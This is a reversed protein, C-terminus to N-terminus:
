GAVESAGVQGAAQRDWLWLIQRTRVRAAPLDAGSALAAWPATYATVVTEAFANAVDDVDDLLDVNGPPRSGVVRM